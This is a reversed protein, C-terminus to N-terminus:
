LDARRSGSDVALGPFVIALGHDPLERRYVVTGAGDDDWSAALLTLVSERVVGEELPPYAEALMTSLRKTQASWYRLVAEDQHDLLGAWDVPSTVDPASTRLATPLGYAAHYREAMAALDEASLTESYLYVHKSM